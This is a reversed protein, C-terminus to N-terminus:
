ATQLVALPLLESVLVPLGDVHRCHDLRAAVEAGPWTVTAELDAAGSSSEVGM